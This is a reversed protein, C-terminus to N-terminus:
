LGTNSISLNNRSNAFTNSDVGYLRESYNEVNVQGGFECIPWM